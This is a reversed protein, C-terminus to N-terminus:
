AGRLTRIDGNRLTIREKDFYELLEIALKRGCGLLDRFEGAKISGAAKLYDTLKVRAEQVAKGHMFANENLRVVAGTKQLHALVRKVDANKFAIRNIDDAPVCALGTKPFLRNIAREIDADAGALTASHSALAVFGAERKVLREKVLADLVAKLIEPPKLRLAKLLAEENMGIELPRRSHYNRLADLLATKAGEAMKLNVAHGGFLAFEASVYSTKDEFLRELEKATKNLMLSLGDKDLGLGKDLMAYRLIEADTAGEGPMVLAANLKPALRSSFYPLLVLGGGVTANTSTDRLIFRDGRLMILPKKLFLRGFAKDKVGAADNILRLTVDAESTQHFLRLKKSPKIQTAANVGKRFEFLCDVRMAGHRVSAALEPSVVVAGREISAHSVGSLNLAARQGAFATDADLHLSQLGRIKVPKGSPFCVASDGKKVAGEAVTGTVVAGFGQVSFARDVPLRFFGGTGAGKTRLREKLLGKLEKVGDGTVSSVRAIPSGELPTAKILACVGAEVERIRDPGAIDCKTIAFIANKVGLFRIIDFHEKTQPMIGDDAAVAFLAMDIGTVGALMNRIFKEHGPVDVVAARLTRSGEDFDLHAFGLNISVGRRKEEALTDTDIGTLAKVLSTKGHDVHGATGIVARIGTISGM